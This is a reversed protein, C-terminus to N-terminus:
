RRPRVAVQVVTTPPAAVPPCNPPNSCAADAHGTFTLEGDGAASARFRWGEPGVSDSPPTLLELVGEGGSVTWKRQDDPRRVRLVEGVKLEVRTAGVDITIASDQSAQQEASWSWLVAPVCIFGAAVLISVLKFM